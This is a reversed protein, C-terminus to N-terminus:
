GGATHSRRVCGARLFYGIAQDMAHLRNYLRDPRFFIATISPTECSMLMFSIERLVIGAPIAAAPSVCFYALGLASGAHSRIWRATYDITLLAPAPNPGLLRLRSASGLPLEVHGASREAYSRRRGAWNSATAPNGRLGGTDQERRIGTAQRPVLEGTPMRGVIWVQCDCDM